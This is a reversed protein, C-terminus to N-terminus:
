PGSSPSSLRCATQVGDRLAGLVVAAVQKGNIHNQVYDAYYLSYVTTLTNIVLGAEASKLGKVPIKQLDAQLKEPSFDGGGLFLSLVDGSACIYSVSNTGSKQVVLLLASSVTGKVLIATNTLQQPTLSVSNTSSPNGPTTGCGTTGSVLGVAVVAALLTSVILKKM